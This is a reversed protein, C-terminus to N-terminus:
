HSLRSESGRAFSRPARRGRLTKAAPAARLIEAEAALWDQEARGHRYGGEAWIEYARARIRDSLDKNM